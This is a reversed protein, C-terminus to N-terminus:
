INTNIYQFFFIIIIYQIHQTFFYNSIYSSLFLTQLILFLALHYYMLNYLFSLVLKLFAIGVGSSAGRVLVSSEEQVKLNCFAGYATYFTEPVAALRAWSLATSVPYIQENPLLVYEAYGGDFARGMEGMISVVRTGEPLKVPDTSQELVRSWVSALRARRSLACSSRM